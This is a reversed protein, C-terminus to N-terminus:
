RGAFLTYKYHYVLFDWGDQANNKKGDNLTWDQIKDYVYIDM